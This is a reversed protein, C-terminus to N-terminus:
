NRLSKRKSSRASSSSPVHVVNLRKTVSKASNSSNGLKITVTNIPKGNWTVSPVFQTATILTTGRQKTLGVSSIHAIYTQLAQLLAHEADSAHGTTENDLKDASSKM